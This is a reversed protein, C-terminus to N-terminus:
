AGLLDVLGRFDKKALLDFVTPKGALSCCWVHNCTTACGPLGYFAIDPGGEGVLACWLFEPSGPRYDKGCHVRAKGQTKWATVEESQIFEMSATHLAQSEELFTKYVSRLKEMSAVVEFSPWRTPEMEECHNWLDQVFSRLCSRCGGIVSKDKKLLTLYIENWLLYKTDQSRHWPLLTWPIPNSGDKPFEKNYDSFDSNYFHESMPYQKAFGAKLTCEFPDEDSFYSFDHLGMAWMPNFFGELEAKLAMMTKKSNAKSPSQVYDHLMGDVVDCKFRIVGFSKFFNENTEKCFALAVDKWPASALVEKLKEVFLLVNKLKREISKQRATERAERKVAIQQCYLDHAIPELEKYTEVIEKAYASNDENDIQAMTQDSLSNLGQEFTITPGVKEGFQRSCPREFVHVTNRAESYSSFALRTRFPDDNNPILPDETLFNLDFFNLKVKKTAQVICDKCFLVGYAESVLKVAKNDCGECLKPYCLSLLRQVSPAWITKHRVLKSIRQMNTSAYGGEFIAARVVHQPTIAGCFLQDTTFLKIDALSMSMYSFIQLALVHIGFVKAAVAFQDEQQQPAADSTGAEVITARPKRGAGHSFDDDLDPDLIAKRKTGAM